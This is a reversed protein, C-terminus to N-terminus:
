DAKRRLKARITVFWFVSSALVFATALIAFDLNLGPKPYSKPNWQHIGLVTLLTVAALIAYPPLGRLKPMSFYLIRGAVLTPLMGWCIIQLFFYFSLVSRGLIDFFTPSGEFVLFLAVWIFSAVDMFTAGALVGIPFGLM